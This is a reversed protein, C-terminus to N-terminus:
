PSLSRMCCPTSSHSTGSTNSICSVDVESNLRQSGRREALTKDPTAILPPPLPPLFTVKQCLLPVHEKTNPLTNPVSAAERKQARKSRESDDAPRAAFKPGVSRSPVNTNNGDRFHVSYVRSNVTIDHETLSLSSLWQDRLM